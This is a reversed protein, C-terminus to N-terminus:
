EGGWMIEEQIENMKDIVKDFSEVEIGLEQSTNAKSLTHCRTRRKNGKLKILNKQAIYVSIRTADLLEGRCYGERETLQKLHDNEANLMILTNLEKVIYDSHTTVLIKVGANMLRAFLRAIRRQNVPHLNLEPEDILLLDGPKAIHRLYFGFDLLSRVSSSSEDMELRVSNTKPKFYIADDNGVVYEGGLMETFDRLIEPHQQSILSEDKEVSQLNRTFDVNEKIPLSYDKYSKFLLDRPDVNEGSKVMEELLRNRAFNLEKRFIVAGTREASSIFPNPLLRQFLLEHISTSIFRSIVTPPMYGTADKEILLSIVMESSNEEKDISFIKGQQSTQFDRHFPRQIVFDSQEFSIRFSSNRFHNTKSAFVEPLGQTYRACGENLIENAKNALPAIDVRTVGNNLLSKIQKNLHETPLFQRWYKLFGFLAYAAYTKGTNNEGCIVTLDNLEFSAHQLVGLNEIEIKM